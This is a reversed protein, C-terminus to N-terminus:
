PDKRPSPYTLAVRRFELARMKDTSDTDVSAGIMEVAPSLRGKWIV